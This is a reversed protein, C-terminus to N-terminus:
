INNIMELIQLPKLSAGGILAGDVSKISAIEQYNDISFSGGYLVKACKSTNKIQSCVQLIHEKTPIDGTGIAWIPEYAIIVKSAEIGSLIINLEEKVYRKAYDTNKKIEEGVCIIPTINNQLLIKAKKNIKALTELHYKKQESHGVICFDAGANKIISASVDGTFAGHLQESVNQAGIKVGYKNKLRSYAKIDCFNPCIILNDVFKDKLARRYFKPQLLNMKLNCVFLFDKKM